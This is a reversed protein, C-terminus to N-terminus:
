ADSTPSPFYFRESVLANGFIGLSALCILMVHANTGTPRQEYRVTRLISDHLLGTTDLAISESCGIDPCSVMAHRYRMEVM